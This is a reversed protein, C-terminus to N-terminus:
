FVRSQERCFERPGCLVRKGYGTTKKRKEETPVAEVKYCKVGNVTEEGLLSFDHEGLEIEDLDEYTFDSGMFSDSDEGASIRRSKKLAPLYLHRSEDTGSHEVSLFGSGKVDAPQLFRILTSLNGKEDKASYREVTRSCTKGSRNVLEMTIQSTETRFGFQKDNEKMVQLGTMQANATTTGFIACIAAYCVTTKINKM